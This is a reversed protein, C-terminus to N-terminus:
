VKTIDEVEEEPAKRDVTAKLNPSVPYVRYVSVENSLM